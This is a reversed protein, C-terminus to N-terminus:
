ELLKRARRLQDEDPGNSRVPRSPRAVPRHPSLAPTQLSKTSCPEIYDQRLLSSVYAELEDRRYFITRKRRIFGLRGTQRALRLEKDELVHGFGAYAEAETILDQPMWGLIPPDPGADAPNRADVCNHERGHRDERTAGRMLNSMM